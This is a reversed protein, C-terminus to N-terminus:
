FVHKKAYRQFNLAKVTGDDKKNRSARVRNPRVSTANQTFLTTIQEEFDAPPDEMMIIIKHKIAHFSVAKNVKLEHKTNRERLEENADNTIITELGSLFITSYFDQYISEVSKGTFNDICLRSKLVQFYTEIGWRKRYLEKFDSTPFRKTDLLSTALIEIEGNPLNVEIFRVQISEVTTGKRVYGIPNISVTTDVSKSKDLQHYKSFTKNKCRVIFDAGKAQIEEFFRYSGFARDAIVIDKAKLIDLHVKSAKIDNTRGASLKASIPIRNLVDYFVTMKAEVRNMERTKKGNVYKIIGFHKRTEATNPLKLTSGDLAILRYGKFKEYDGDNYMIDVICKEHLEIFATHRFKSRAQSFASASIQNDLSDCWENM